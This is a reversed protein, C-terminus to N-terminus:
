LGFAEDEAARMAKERQITGKRTLGNRAGLLGLAELEDIVKHNGKVQAGQQGSPTNILASKAAESMNM